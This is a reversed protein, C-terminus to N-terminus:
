LRFYEHRSEGQIYVIGAASALIKRAFIKVDVTKSRAALIGLRSSLMQQSM